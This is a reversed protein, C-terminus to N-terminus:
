ALTTYQGLPCDTILHSTPQQNRSTFLCWSTRRDRRFSIPLRLLREVSGVALGFLETDLVREPVSVVEIVAVRSSGEQTHPHQWLRQQASLLSMFPMEKTFAIAGGMM